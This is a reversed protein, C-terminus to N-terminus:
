KQEKSGEAADLIERIFEPLIFSAKHITTNYYITKSPPNRIPKSPDILNSAVTFTWIGGPYYPIAAWFVKVIRFVSRLSRYIHLLMNKQFIPSGSQFVAIGSRDLIRQIGAYFEERILAEAVTNEYPDSYDAIVVDFKEKCRNVYKAADAIVLEVKSNDLAGNDLKLYKKSVSIVKKDIEVLVVREVFDYKLVERLVVGDGGGVILVRKPNPHAALPIHALMEDYSDFREATQITMDGKEELLLMKGLIETDAVIIKFYKTKEEHLIRKSRFKLMLGM